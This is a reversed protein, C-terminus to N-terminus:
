SNAIRSGHTIVFPSIFNKHRVSHRMRLNRDEGPQRLLIRLRGANQGTLVRQEAAGHVVDAIVGDVVLDKDVIRKRM